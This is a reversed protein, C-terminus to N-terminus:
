SKPSPKAQLLKAAQAHAFVVDPDRQLAEYYQRASDQSTENVALLQNTQRSFNEIAVATLPEKADLAEDMAAALQSFPRLWAFWPDSTLLQWFQYPSKIKGFTAEYGIRESELLAKHLVLLADRLATLRTRLETSEIKVENSM